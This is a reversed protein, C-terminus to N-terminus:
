SEPRQFRLYYPRESGLGVAAQITAIADKPVMFTERIKLRDGKKAGSFAATACIMVDAPARLSIAATPTWQRGSADTLFIKCGVWLKQMDPDGVTVTFDALVPVANAPLGEMGLTTRLDTLQWDSGGFHAASGWAVDRAILDNNGLCTRVSGYSTEVIVAPQLVVLAWRARRRWKRETGSRGEAIRGHSMTDVAHM